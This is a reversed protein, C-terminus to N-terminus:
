LSGAVLRATAEHTKQIEAVVREIVAREEASTRAGLGLIGGSAAAIEECAAVLDRLDIRGLTVTDARYSPGLSPGAGLNGCQDHGNVWSRLNSWDRRQHPGENAQVWKMVDGTCNWWDPISIDFDVVDPHPRTV